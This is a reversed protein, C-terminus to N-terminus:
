VGDSVFEALAGMSTTRDYTGLRDEFQLVGLLFLSIRRFLDVSFLHCGFVLFSPVVSKFNPLHTSRGHACKHPSDCLFISSSRLIFNFAFDIWRQRASPM